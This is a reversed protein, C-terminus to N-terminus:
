RCCSAPDAADDKRVIRVNPCGHEADISLRHLLIEAEETDISINPHVIGLQCITTIRLDSISITSSLCRAGVQRRFPYIHKNIM